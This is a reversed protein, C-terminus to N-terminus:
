YRHGLNAVTTISKDVGDKDTFVASTITCPLHRGNKRIATVGAESQGEGTRQRLM